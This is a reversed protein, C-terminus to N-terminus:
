FAGCSQCSEVFTFTSNSETIVRIQNHEIRFGLKKHSFVAQVVPVGDRWIESLFKAAHHLRGIEASLTHECVAAEGRSRASTLALGPLLNGIMEMLLGLKRTFGCTMSQEMM